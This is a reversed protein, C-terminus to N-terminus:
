NRRMNAIHIADNSGKRIPVANSKHLTGIGLLETGSYKITERVFGNGVRDSTPLTEPTDLDPFDPRHSGKTPRYGVRKLLKQLLLKDQQLKQWKSM